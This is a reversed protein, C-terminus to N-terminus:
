PELKIEKPLIHANKNNRQYSATKISNLIKKDRKKPVVVYDGVKINDARTKIIDGPIFYERTRNKVPEQRKVRTRM